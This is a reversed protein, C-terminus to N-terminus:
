YNQISELIEPLVEDATGRISFHSLESAITKSPNIDTIIANTRTRVECVAHQLYPLSLETGVIFLHEISYSPLLKLQQRAAWNPKEGKLVISPHMIQPETAPCSNNDCVPIETKNLDLIKTLACCPCYISGLKGHLHNVDDNGAKEHLDDINQTIVKVDLEPNDHELNSIAIHGITPIPQKDLYPSSLEFIAEWTRQPYDEFCQRSLSERIESNIYIGDEDRFTNFGASKSLGAGTIFVVM